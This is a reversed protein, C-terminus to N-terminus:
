LVMGVRRHHQEGNRVAGAHICGARLRGARRAPAALGHLRRARDVRLRPGHGDGRRELLQDPRPRRRGYRQRRLAARGRATPARRPRGEALEVQHPTASGDGGDDPATHTGTFTGDAGGVGPVPAIPKQFFWFGADKTGETAFRDAGFYLQQDGTGDIYKIAFGDDLENADPVSQDRWQWHAPTGSIEDYDKSSTFISTSRGDHSFVCEVAGLSTCTEDPDGNALDYVQNWDDGEFVGTTGTDIKSINEAKAHDGNPAPGASTGDVGRTALYSRKFDFGSPCGGGGLNAGNALTMREADILIKAGNYFASVDQCIQITTELPVTTDASVAANLLGIKTYTANNTADKDLEFLTRSLDASAGAIFFLGFAFVAVLPLLLTRRRRPSGTPGIVRETM